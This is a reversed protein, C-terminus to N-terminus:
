CNLMVGNTPRAEAWWGGLGTGESKHPLALTSPLSWSPRGVIRVDRSGMGGLFLSGSIWDVCGSRHKMRGWAWIFGIGPMWVFGIEGGTRDCYLRFSVVSRLGVAWSARYRNGGGHDSRHGTVRHLSWPESAGRSPLFARATAQVRDEPGRLGDLVRSVTGNVDPRGVSAGNGDRGDRLVFVRSFLDAVLKVRERRAFDVGPVGTM